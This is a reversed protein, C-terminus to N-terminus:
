RAVRKKYARPSEGMFTGFAKSFASPSEFGVAAAVDGITSDNRELLTMARILRSRHRYDVWSMGILESFRRRLSRESLSAARCVDAFCADALHAETYSLAKGLRRDDTTPLYLPADSEIWKSLLLAFTKFYMRGDPDEPSDIPWRMAEKVMERM